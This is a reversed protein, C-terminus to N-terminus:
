QQRHWAESKCPLVYPSVGIQESLTYIGYIAGRKDSGAVVLAHQIGELPDKVVSTMYSEWKGELNSIDIKGNDALRKLISSSEISGVIIATNTAPFADQEGLETEHIATPAQNLVTGLDKSLNYAAKKIGPYENKAIIISADNLCVGDNDTARFRVIDPEFM